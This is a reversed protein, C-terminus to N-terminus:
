RSLEVSEEFQHKKKFFIKKLKVNKIRFFFFRDQHQKSKKLIYTYYLSHGKLLVYLYPITGDNNRLSTNLFILSPLYFTYHDSIYICYIIMKEFFVSEKYKITHNVFIKKSNMLIKNKSRRFFVRYFWNKKFSGKHYIQLVRYEKNKSSLYWTHSVCIMSIDFVLPREYHLIISTFKV